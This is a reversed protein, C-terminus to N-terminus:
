HQSRKNSKKEGTTVTWAPPDSAPFSEDSAEEITDLTKVKHKQPKKHEQKHTTNM